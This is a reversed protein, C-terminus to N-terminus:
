TLADLFQSLLFRLKRYPIGETANRARRLFQTYEEARFPVSACERCSRIRPLTGNLLSLGGIRGANKRRSVGRRPRTLATGSIASDPEFM